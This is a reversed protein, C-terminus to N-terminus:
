RFLSALVKRPGEYERRAHMVLYNDLLGVDGQEWLLEVACEETLQKSYQLANIDASGFSSDDGFTLFRDLSETINSDDLEGSRDSWDKANALTAPLQNFFVRESTGPAVCIAKLRPSTCRLVDDDQWEWTYGLEVMREEVETKTEVVKGFFQKWGRGVGKSPDPLARLYASYKVGKAELKEVFEHFKLELRRLVEASSCIGTGGGTTAPTECFFMLKSPWRPTQAQEHHFVMGGRKGENTTCVRGLVPLRVAMSLSEEYSLDKWHKFCRIFEDFHTATKFPFGRFLIAGHKSLQEEIVELNESVWTTAQALSVSRDCCELVLPMIVGGFVLQAPPKLCVERIIGRGDKLKKEYQPENDLEETSTRKM